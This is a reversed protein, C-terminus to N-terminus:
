KVRKCTFKILLIRRKGKPGAFNNSRMISGRKSKKVCLCLPENARECNSHNFENRQMTDFGIITM